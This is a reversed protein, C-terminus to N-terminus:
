EKWFRKGRRGSGIEGEWAKDREKRIRKGRRGL